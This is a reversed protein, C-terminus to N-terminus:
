EQVEISRGPDFFNFIMLCGLFKITENKSTNLNQLPFFQQQGLGVLEFFCIRFNKNKEDHKQLTPMCFCM